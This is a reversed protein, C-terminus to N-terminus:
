TTCTSCPMARYWPSFSITCSPEPHFEHHQLKGLLGLEVNRERPEVQDLLVTRGVGTRRRHEIPQADCCHALVLARTRLAMCSM